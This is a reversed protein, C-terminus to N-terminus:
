GQWVLRTVHCEFIVHSIVQSGDPVRNPGQKAGTPCGMWGGDSVGDPGMRGEYPRSFFNFILFFYM